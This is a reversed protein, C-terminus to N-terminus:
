VNLNEIIKNSITSIKFLKRRDNASQYFCIQYQTASTM